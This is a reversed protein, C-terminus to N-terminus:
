SVSVKSSGAAVIWTGALWLWFCNWYGLAALTPIGAFNFCVLLVVAGILASIVGIILALVLGALLAGLIKM